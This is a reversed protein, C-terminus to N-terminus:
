ETKSTDDSGVAAPPSKIDNGAPANPEAPKVSERSSEDAPAAADTSTEVPMLSAQGLFEGRGVILRQGKTKKASSEFVFANYGIERITGKISGIEFPDGEHLKLTTATPRIFLWVESEDGVNIIATLVTHKAQDFALPVDDPDVPKEERVVAKPPDTVTIILKETFVNPPFSDDSATIEFEYDGAKRPTWSLKGTADLRADQTPSKSLELKVRDLPDPDSAKATISVARNTEGKQKGLGSIQPKRNTPAFINRGVISTQYKEASDLKLKKSPRNHLTQTDAATRVSVADLTLSVDLEKSDKIPKLSLRSVRHLLDVRYIEHLLKVIQEYRAKGTLTFSQQVYIDMVSRQGAPSVVQEHLGAEEAKTLLWHQYASRAIAPQPPLSRAEYDRLKAAAKAGETVLNKQRLLKSDIEALQDQRNTVASAYYRFALFAILCAAAAGVGIALLRESDKM